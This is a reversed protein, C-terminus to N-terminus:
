TWAGNARIASNEVSASQPPPMSAAIPQFAGGSDQLLVRRRSPDVLLVLRLELRDPRSLYVTVSEHCVGDHMEPKDVSDIYVINGPPDAHLGQEKVERWAKTQEVLRVARSHRAASARCQTADEAFATGVMCLALAACVVSRLILNKV